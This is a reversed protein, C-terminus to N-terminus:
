GPIDKIDHNPSALLKLTNTVDTSPNQCAFKNIEPPIAASEGEAELALIHGAIMLLWHLDEFIEDLVKFNQLSTGNSSHLMALTGGLNRIRDELIKSLLPLSHELIERGFYGVIILQEKFRDRDSEEFETIEDIADFDRGVGRMGEPPAIHYQVYKEFIQSFFTIMM